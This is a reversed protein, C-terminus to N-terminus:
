ARPLRMRMKRLELQTGVLAALTQLMLLKQESLQRPRSDALGLVGLAYGEGDVIPAGAYYVIRPEGLTLPNDYFREDYHANPVEMIEAPTLIAFACFSHHRPAEKLELGYSSKFWERKEDVLSIFARPTGSMKVTQQILDEYWKESPTELIHCSALAQLRASENTPLPPNIM